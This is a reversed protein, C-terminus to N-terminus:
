QLEDGWGLRNYVEMQKALMIHRTVADAEIQYAIALLDALSGVKPAGASSASM